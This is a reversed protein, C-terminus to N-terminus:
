YITKGDIIKKIFQQIEVANDIMNYPNGIVQKEISINTNISIGLVTELDEVAHEYRITPATINHEKIVNDFNSITRHLWILEDVQTICYTDKNHRGHSSDWKNSARGIAFSLLQHEVNERKIIIFVFNLKKLTDLIEKLYPYINETLFLKLVLSQNINGSKLIESVHAIRESHKYTKSKCALIRDDVNVINYPHNDTFPEALNDMNPYSSTILRSIYQSGCRPLGLLCIRM